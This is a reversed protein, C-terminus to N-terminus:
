SDTKCNTSTRTSDTHAVITRCWEVLETDSMAMKMVNVVKHVWQINDIVYGKSIDKRDLSATSNMMLSVGSIACKHGQQVFLEWCEHITVQVPIKRKRANILISTWLHGSIHEHNRSAKSILEGRKCGCSTTLGNRLRQGSIVRFTGCACSCEYFVGGSRKGYPSRVRLLVTWEGVRDGAVYKTDCSM